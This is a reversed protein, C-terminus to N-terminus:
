YCEVQVASGQTGAAVDSVGLEKGVGPATSFAVAHSELFGTITAINIGFNVNQPNAASTTLLRARVIGVLLGQRDFIPGGSSGPQVTASMQFASADDMPGSLGNVIGATVIPGSSLMGRLPYGVAVLEEGLRLGRGARLRAPQAVALDAHLLALDNKADLAVVKVEQAGPMVRVQTCGQVVHENTLVDGAASVVVGSGYAGRRAGGPGVMQPLQIAANEAVVTKSQKQAEFLEGASLSRSLRDKGDSAAKTMPTNGPVASYWAYALVPDRAIGGRGFEYVSAIWGYANPNGLAAAKRLWRLAEAGDARVGRGLAYIRGTSVMGDPYLQLASKRYWDLAVLYDQALGGLGSESYVGMWYMGASDKRDSAARFWALAAVEDKAYGLLGGSLWAGILTQAPPHHKEAADRIMAIGRAEDKPVLNGALYMRGLLFTAAVSGKAHAQSIYDRARLEDRPGGLGRLYMDGLLYLAEANGQEADGALERRAEEFRARGYLERGEALGAGAPSAWASGLLAALCVWARIRQTM